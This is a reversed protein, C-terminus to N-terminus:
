PAQPGWPPSYGGSRRHRRRLVLVRIGLILSIIGFIGAADLSLAGEFRYTHGLIHGNAPDSPLYSVMHHVGVLECLPYVTSYTVGHVVWAVNEHTCYNHRHLLSYGENLVQTVTGVTTVGGAFPQDLNSQSISSIGQYVCGIALAVLTVAITLLKVVKIGYTTVQIPAGQRIQM